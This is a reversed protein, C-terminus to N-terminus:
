NFLGCAKIREAMLRSTLPKLLLLKENRVHLSADHPAFLNKIYNLCSNNYQSEPHTLSFAFLGNYIKPPFVFSHLPQFFWFCIELDQTWYLYMNKLGCLLNSRLLKEIYFIIYVNIKLHIEPMREYKSKRKERSAQKKRSFWCSILCRTFAEITIGWM